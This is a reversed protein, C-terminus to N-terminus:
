IGRMSCQAGKGAMVWARPHHNGHGQVMRANNSDSDGDESDSDNSGPIHSPDDSDDDSKSDTEYDEFVIFGHEAGTGIDVIAADGSDEDEDLTVDDSAVRTRQSKSAEGLNQLRSQTAKSRRGMGLTVNQSFSGQKGGFEGGPTNDKRV